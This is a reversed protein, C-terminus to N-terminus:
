ALMIIIKELIGELDILLTAVLMLLVVTGNLLDPLSGTLIAILDWLIQKLHYLLVVLNAFLNSLM